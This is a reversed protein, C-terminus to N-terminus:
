RRNLLRNEYDINKLFVILIMLNFILFQNPFDLSTLASFLSFFILNKIFRKKYNSKYNAIVSYLLVFFLSLGIIGNESLLEMVINHPYIRNFDDVPIYLKSFSGVGSGLFPSNVFMKFSDFILFVRGGDSLGILRSNEILTHDLSLLSNLIILLVSVVLFLYRSKKVILNDWIMLFIILFVITRTETAVLMLIFFPIILFSLGKFNFYSVLIGFGILRAYVIPEGFAIRELDESLNSDVNSPYLYNLVTSAFINLVLLLLLLKFGEKGFTVPILLNFILMNFIVLEFKYLSYNNQFDTQLFYYLGFLLFIMVARSHLKYLRLYKKTASFYLGVNIILASIFQFYHTSFVTLNNFIFGLIGANYLIISAILNM